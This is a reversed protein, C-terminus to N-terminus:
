VGSLIGVDLQVMNYCFIYQFSWFRVCSFEVFMVNQLLEVNSFTYAASTWKECVTFSDRDHSKHRTKAVVCVHVTCSSPMCHACYLIYLVHVTCVRSYPVLSQRGILFITEHLVCSERM